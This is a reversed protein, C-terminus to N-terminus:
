LTASRSWRVPCSRPRGQPSSLTDEQISLIRSSGALVKLAEESVELAMLPITTYLRMVRHPTGAIELLLAQEAAAIDERRPAEGPVGVRLQVIVRVSGQDRAKRLLDPSVVTGPPQAWGCTMRVLTLAVVLLTAAGAGGRTSAISCRSSDPATAQRCRAEM